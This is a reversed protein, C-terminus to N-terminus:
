DLASYFARIMEVQGRDAPDDESLGLRGCVDLVEPPEFLGM